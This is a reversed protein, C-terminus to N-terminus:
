YITAKAFMLAHPSQADRYCTFHTFGSKKLMKIARQRDASNKYGRINLSKSIQIM